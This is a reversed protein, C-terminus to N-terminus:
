PYQCCENISFLVCAKSITSLWSIVSNLSLLRWAPQPKHDFHILMAVMAVLTGASVLVALVEWVYWDSVFTEGSKPPQEKEDQVV